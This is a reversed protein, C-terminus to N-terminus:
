AQRAKAHHTKASVRAMFADLSSPDITEFEGQDVQDFSESALRRLTALKLKNQKENDALLRLGARVVESANRYDGRDISQRIFQAQQDSLNVNQTPM